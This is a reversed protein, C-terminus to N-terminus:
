KQKKPGGDDKGGAGGEGSGDGSKTRSKFWFYVAAVFALFILFGLFNDM